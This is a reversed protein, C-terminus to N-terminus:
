NIMVYMAYLRGASEGDGSMHDIARHAETHWTDNIFASANHVSCVAVAEQM